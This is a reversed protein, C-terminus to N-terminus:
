VLIQSKLSQSPENALFSATALSALAPSDPYLSRGCSPNSNLSLQIHAERLSFHPRRLTLGQTIKLLVRGLLMDKWLCIM